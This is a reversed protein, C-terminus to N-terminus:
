KLVFGSLVATVAASMELNGLLERVLPVAAVRATYELMVVQFYPDRKTAILLPM